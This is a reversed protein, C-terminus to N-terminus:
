EEISNRLEPYREFFPAFLRILLWRKGHGKFQSNLDNLGQYITTLHWSVTCEAICLRKAIATTTLGDAALELIQRQPKTLEHVYFHILRSNEIM